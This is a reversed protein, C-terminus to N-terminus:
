FRVPNHFLIIDRGRFPKNMKHFSLKRNTPWIHIFLKRKPFTKKLDRELRKIKKAFGKFWKSTKPGKVDISVQIDKRDLQARVGTVMRLAGCTKTIMSKFHKQEDM